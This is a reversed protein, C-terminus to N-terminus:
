GGGILRAAQESADLLHGPALHAYRQTMTPSSHNLLAQVTYLSTGATVLISAFNHRLDRIHFDDIGARRCVRGWTWRLSQRHSGPKTGPFVHPNKAEKPITALLRVVTDSLPKFSTKGSKPKPLCWRKADLDFDDWKASATEGFRAGTLLILMLLSAGIRDEDEHLAQVLARIQDPTLYRHRQNNERMLRIGAAPSRDLHGWQVARNLMTKTLALHRNATAPARGEAVIGDHLRAIDGATVQTLLKRGLAPLIRKDLLKIDEPWSRKRAKQHPIFEQTVFEAVTLAKAKADREASPDEGAVVRGRIEVAKKRAQELTVDHGFRGLKLM